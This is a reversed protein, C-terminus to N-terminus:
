FEEKKKFLSSLNYTKFAAHLQVFNHLANCHPQGQLTCSSVNSFLTYKNTSSNKSPSSLPLFTVAHGIRTPKHLYETQECHEIGILSNQECHETGILSIEALVAVSRRLPKRPIQLVTRLVFRQHGIVTDDPRWTRTPTHPPHSCPQPPPWTLLWFLWKNVPGPPWDIM